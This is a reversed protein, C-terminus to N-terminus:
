ESERKITDEAAIRASEHMEATKIYRSVEEPKVTYYFSGGTASKGRYGMVDVSFGGEPNLPSCKWPPTRDPLTYVGWEGATNPSPDFPDPRRRSRRGLPATLLAPIRMKMKTAFKQIHPFLIVSPLEIVTVQVNGTETPNFLSRSVTQNSFVPLLRAGLHNEFGPPHEVDSPSMTGTRSRKPTHMDVEAIFEIFRHKEEDDLPRTPLLTIIRGISDPYKCITDYELGLLHDDVWSPLMQQKQQQKASERLTANSKSHVVGLTRNGNDNTIDAHSSGTPPYGYQMVFGIEENSYDKIQTRATVRDPLLKQGLIWQVPSSVAKEIETPSDTVPSPPPGLFYRLASCDFCHLTYMEPVPPPTNSVAGRRYYPPPIHPHHRVVHLVPTFSEIFLLITTWCLDKPNPQTIILTCPRYRLAMHRSLRLEPQEEHNDMQSM